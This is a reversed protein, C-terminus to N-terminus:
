QWKFFNIESYIEKIADRISGFIAVLIVAIFVVYSLPNLPNLRRRTRGREDETEQTVLAAKLFKQIKTM